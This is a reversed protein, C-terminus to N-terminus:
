LLRSRPQRQGSGFLAFACPISTLYFPGSVPSKGHSVTVASPNREPCYDSLAREAAILILVETKSRPVPCWVSNSIKASKFTPKTPYIQALYFVTPDDSFATPVKM